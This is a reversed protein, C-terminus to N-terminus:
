LRGHHIGAHEWFPKTPSACVCGRHQTDWLLSQSRWARHQSCLVKRDQLVTHEASPIFRLTGQATGAEQAPSHTEAWRPVPLHLPFPSEWGEAPQGRAGLPSSPQCLIGPDGGTSSPWAGERATRDSAHGTRSIFFATAPKILLLPLESGCWCGLFASDLLAPTHSRWAERPLEAPQFGQGGWWRM